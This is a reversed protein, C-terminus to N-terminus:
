FSEEFSGHIGELCRIRARRAISYKVKINHDSMIKNRITSAKTGNHRNIYTRINREVWEAKVDDSDKDEVGSAGIVNSSCGATGDTGDEYFLRRPKM